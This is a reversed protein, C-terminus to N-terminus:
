NSGRNTNSDQTAKANVREQELQSLRRELNLMAEAVNLGGQAERWGELANVRKELRAVLTALHRAPTLGGSSFNEETPEGRLIILSPQHVTGRQLSIICDCETLARMIPSYWTSSISLHNMVKTTHGEFVVIGDENTDARKELERYFALSHLFLTEQRM